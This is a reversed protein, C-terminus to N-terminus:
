PTQERATALGAGAGTEKQFWMCATEVDAVYVHRAVFSSLPANMRVHGSFLLATSSVIGAGAVRRHDFERAPGVLGAHAPHPEARPPRWSCWADIGDGHLDRGARLRGFPELDRRDRGSPRPELRGLRRSSGGLARPLQPKTWRLSEQSCGRTM